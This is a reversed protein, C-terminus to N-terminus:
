LGFTPLPLASASADAKPFGEFGARGKHFVLAGGPLYESMEIHSQICLGFTPLPLALAPADGSPFGDLGAGGRDLVFAGDPSSDSVDSTSLGVESSESCAVLLRAILRWSDLWGPLTIDSM